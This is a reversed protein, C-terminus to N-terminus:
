KNWIAFDGPNIGVEYSSLELGNLDVVKVTGPENALYGNDDLVGLGFWINENVIEVHYVNGQNYSGIRASENLNLDELIPAIGGEFSRYVQDNYNLVSGGCIVGSGYTLSTVQDGVIKSSGHFESWNEDYFRRSIFVDGNSSVLNQPGNGVEVTETISNTQIDIKNLTSGGSNAVWLYNSSYLLGEPMIGVDITSEIEFNELNLVKLFGPTTQYVNYDPDWAGFYLKEDIVIMERPSFGETSIEQPNSLGSDSIDFVMLKQSNNVSVILKDNYVVLAQVVDGLVESDFQNGFEDIMTIYGNNGYFAGENAIFVWSSNEPENSSTSNSDCSVLILAVVLLFVRKM